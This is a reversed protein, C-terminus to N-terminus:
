ISTRKHPEPNISIPCNVHPLNPYPRSTSPTALKNAIVSGIPFKKPPAVDLKYVQPNIASQREVIAPTEYSLTFFADRDLQDPTVGVVIALLDRQHTVSAKLRIQSATPQSTAATIELDDYSYGGVLGFKDHRM